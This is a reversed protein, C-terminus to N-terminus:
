KEEWWFATWLLPGNDECKMTHYEDPPIEIVDGAKVEAEKEGIVVKGRGKIVIYVEETPHAHGEMQSNAELYGWASDFPPNMNEPIVEHALITNNHAPAAKERDFGTINM